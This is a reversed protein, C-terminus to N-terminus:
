YSYIHRERQVAERKGTLSRAMTESIPQGTQMEVFLFQGWPNVELFVLENDSTLKFDLAGYSLRLRSMMDHILASQRDTLQYKIIKNFVEIRWDREAEPLNVLVEAPFLTGGIYTVRLNRGAIYEQFIAPAYKLDELREFDPQDLFNTTILANRASNFSKYIIKGGKLNIRNYFDIVSGPDNTILTEPTGLGIDQAVSLQYAKNLSAFENIPNNIIHCGNSALTFFFGDLASRTDRRSIEKYTSDTLDPSVSHNYIRRRWVGVINNSDITRGDANELSLIKSSGPTNFQSIFRVKSPFNKTDIISCSYNNFKEIEKKVALAHIDNDASLIILEKM